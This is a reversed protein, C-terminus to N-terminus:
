LQMKVELIAKLFKKMTEEIKANGWTFICTHLNITMQIWEQQTENLFHPFVEMINYKFSLFKKTLYLTM